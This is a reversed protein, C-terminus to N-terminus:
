KQPANPKTGRAADPPKMVGLETLMEASNGWTWGNVQKGGKYLDVELQHIDMPKNTPKIAGLAGKQTGSYEQLVVAYDGDGFGGVVKSKLDPFVALFSDLMERFAKKGKVDTPGTYDVYVTDDAIAKLVGDVNRDSLFAAGKDELEINKRQVEIANALEKRQNEDKAEKAEEESRAKYDDTGNPPATIAARVPNKRDPVLQGVATPEDHFRQEEKILGDDDVEFWSAGVIGVAKNTAKPIGMEPADGTNTGTFVSEIVVTHRDKEWIRGHTLKADKFVAFMREASKEIAERGKVDPMGPMKILADDAYLAALQKPDRSAFAEDMARARAVHDRPGERKETKAPASATPVVAARASASQAPSEGSGSSRDCGALVLAGLVWGFIFITRM